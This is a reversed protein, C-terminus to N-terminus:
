LHVDPACPDIPRHGRRGAHRGQVVLVLTGGQDANLPGGSITAYATSQVQGAQKFTVAVSASNNILNYHGGGAILTPNTSVVLSGAAFIGIGKAPGVSQKAVSPDVGLTLTPDYQTNGTGDPM